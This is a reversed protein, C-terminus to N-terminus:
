SFSLSHSMISNVKRIYQLNIISSKVEKNPLNRQNKKNQFNIM